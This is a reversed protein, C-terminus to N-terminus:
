IDPPTVEDCASAESCKQVCITEYGGNPLLFQIAYCDTLNAVNIGIIKGQLTGDLFLNINDATLGSTGSTGNTGSVPTLGDLGSTGSSGSSGSSGSTGSTGSTGHAGYVEIQIGVRDNSNITGYTQTNAGGPLITFGNTHLVFTNDISVRIFNTPDDCDYLTIHGILQNNNIIAKVQSLATIVGKLQDNVKNNSKCTEYGNFSVAMTHVFDTTTFINPTGVAGHYNWKVSGDVIDSNIYQSGNATNDINANLHGQYIIM